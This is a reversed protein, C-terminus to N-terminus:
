FCDDVSRFMRGAAPLFVRSTQFGGRSLFVRSTQFGGLTLFVRSTQFGGLTLFVRSTQFGGLTLFVRSTQFGGRSLFVRSTQFGGRSNKSNTAHPTQTVAEATAKIHIVTIYWKTLRHSVVATIIIALSLLPGNQRLTILVCLAMIIISHVGQDFVM